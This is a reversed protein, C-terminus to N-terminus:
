GCPSKYNWYIRYGAENLSQILSAVTVHDGGIQIVGSKHIYIQCYQFSSDGSNQTGDSTKDIKDPGKSTENM